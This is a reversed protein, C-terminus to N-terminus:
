AVNFDSFKIVHSTLWNEADYGNILKISGVTFSSKTHAVDCLLNFQKVVNLVTWGMSSNHLSIGLADNFPANHISNDNDKLASQLWQHSRPLKQVRVIVHSSFKHYAIYRGFNLASAHIIEWNRLCISLSVYARLHRWLLTSQLNWKIPRIFAWGVANVSKNAWFNIATQTIPFIRWSFTRASPAKANWLYNKYTCPSLFLLQM